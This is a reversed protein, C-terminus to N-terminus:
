FDTTATLYVSLTKAFYAHYLLGRSGMGTLVWVKPSVRKVFPLYHGKRSVRVGARCELIKLKAADPFLLTVKPLIEKRAREEDVEESLSGREYTSGLQCHLPDPGVAMHGKGLLSRELPAHREPLACTLVQGRVGAVPLVGLEPFSLTGVGAAVVIQDYEELLELRDIKVPYLVAGLARCAQFLGQLYLQSYVTIGSHILFTGPGVFSLDGYSPIHASFTKSQAENQMLRMIGGYNAVPRQLAEEAVKLLEHTACL